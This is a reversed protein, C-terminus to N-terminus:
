FIKKTFFLNKITSIKPLIFFGRIGFQDFRNIALYVFCNIYFLFISKNNEKLFKKRIVENYRKGEAIGKITANNGHVKYISLPLQISQYKKSNYSLRLLWDVDMALSPFNIEDILGTKEHLERRWFTSDTFVIRGTYLILQFPSIRPLVDIKKIIKDFEHYEIYRNGYVFDIEANKNFINSVTELTGPLYEEDSNLWCLIDGTAISFGKNLANSQGKDKESIIYSIFYSYKNIIELTNDTSGGDIIIYELNSYKQNQISQICKEIFEGGNYVPTIISIKLPMESSLM